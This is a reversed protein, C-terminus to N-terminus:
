LRGRIRAWFRSLHFAATTAFPGDLIASGAVSSATFALRDWVGHCCPSVAETTSRIASGRRLYAGAFSQAFATSSCGVARVQANRTFWCRRPLLKANALAFSQPEPTLTAPDFTGLGGFMSTGTAHGFIIMRDIPTTGDGAATSIDVDVDGSSAGMGPYFRGAIGVDRADTFLHVLLDPGSSKRLNSVDFRDGIQVYLEYHDNFNAPPSAMRSTRMSVPIICPWDNGNGSVDSALDFLIDGPSDSTATNGSVAWRQIRSDSEGQQVVHTLEHALLRRGASTQPQYGGSRFVVHNQFTYALADVDQASQAARSDTHVRVNSFDQGFRPEFFSRTASDIPQGPSRLVERVSGPAETAGEGGPQVPKTQIREGGEEKQACEPCAGGCACARQLRPEPMRMVQDAVRDAEQEHADGPKNVTLKTQLISRVERNRASFAPGTRASGEPRAVPIAKQKAAFTHM